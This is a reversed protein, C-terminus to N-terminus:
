YGWGYVPMPPDRVCADPWAILVVVRKSDGAILLIRRPM